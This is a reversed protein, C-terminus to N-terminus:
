EATSSSTKLITKVDTLWEVRDQTLQIWGVNECIVRGSVGMDNLPTKRELMDVIIRCANRIEGL